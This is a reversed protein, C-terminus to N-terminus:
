AGQLIILLLCYFIYGIGLGLSIALKLIAGETIGGKKYKERILQLANQIPTKL